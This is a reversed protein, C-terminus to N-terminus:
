VWGKKRFYLFMMVGIFAMFILIIPYAIPYSLEPMNVFNMGYISTIFTLPIFITAIVTLMKMIDNMKNNVSSLYIEVMEFSIERLIEITEIIQVTHDYIDKLYIETNEKFIKGGDKQLSNIIERVPWVSKRLFILERKLTLFKIMIEHKPNEILEHEMKEIKEGLKELVVFYNDIITDILTYALYSSDMKRLKSKSNKIRDKIVDFKNSSMEQFSIVFKPGIILSVQEIKIEKDYDIMKLFIFIYNEFYEIKIRHNTNAIDEVLLPHLGLYDKIKKLIETQHVGGVDIWTTSPKKFFSFCDDINKVEKEIVYDKTYDMMRIIVKESIKKGVYVVSGPPLGAKKSLNEALKKM